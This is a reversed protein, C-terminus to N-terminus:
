EEVPAKDTEYQEADDWEDEEGYAERPEFAAVALDELDSDTEYGKDMEKAAEGIEYYLDHEIAALQEETIEGAKFAARASTLQELRSETVSAMAKYHSAQEPHKKAMARFYNTLLREVEAEQKRESSYPISKYHHLINHVHEHMYIIDEAQEPTIGYDSAFKNIHENYDQNVMYIPTSYKPVTAAIAPDIEGAIMTKPEKLYSLENESALKNSRLYSTFRQFEGSRNLRQGTQKFQDIASLNKDVLHELASPIMEEPLNYKERYGLESEITIINDGSAIHMAMKRGFDNV